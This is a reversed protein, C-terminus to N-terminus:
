NRQVKGSLVNTVILKSLAVRRLYPPFNNAHEEVMQFINVYGEVTAQPHHTVDDPANVFDLEAPRHAPAGPHGRVGSVTSLASPRCVRDRRRQIAAATRVVTGQPRPIM